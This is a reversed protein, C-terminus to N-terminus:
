KKEEKEKKRRKRKEKEPFDPGQGRNDHIELAEELQVGELPVAGDLDGGGAQKKAALNLLDAEGEVVADRDREVQARVLGLLEVLGALVVLLEVSHNGLELHHQEARQPKVHDNLV